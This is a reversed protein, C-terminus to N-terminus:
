RKRREKIVVKFIDHYRYGETKHTAWFDFTVITGKPLDWKQLRRYLTKFKPNGNIMCHSCSDGGSNALEDDHEWYDNKEKYWGYSGDPFEVSVDFQTWYRNNRSYITGVSQCWDRLKVYDEWKYLYTKDIAAM